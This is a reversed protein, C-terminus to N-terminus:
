LYQEVIERLRAASDEFDERAALAAQPIDGIELTDLIVNGSANLYQVGFVHRVRTGIIRCTGYGGSVISLPIQGITALLYAMDEPTMPLLTFNIIHNPQGPLWASAREIIEALVPLANMVDPSPKEPMPPVTRTLAEAAERAIAPIDAVEVIDLIEGGGEDSARIRWIGTLASESAQYVPDHGAIVSVDGDGLIDALLEKEAADLLDLAMACPRLSPDGLAEHISALVVGLAPSMRADPEIHRRRRRLLSPVGTLALGDGTELFVGTAPEEGQWVMPNVRQEFM